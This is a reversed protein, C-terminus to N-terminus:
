QEHATPSITSMEKSYKFRQKKKVAALSYVFCTKHVQRHSDGLQEDDLDMRNTTSPPISSGSELYPMLTMM